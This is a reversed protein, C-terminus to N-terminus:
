SQKSLGEFYASAARALRETQRDRLYSVLAQFVKPLLVPEPEPEREARSIGAGELRDRSVDNTARPPLGDESIGGAPTEQRLNQGRGQHAHDICSHFLQGRLDIWQIESFPKPLPAGCFLVPVLKKSEDSLAWRIENAIFTSERAECCWCLVFVRAERVAQHIEAEWNDGPRLSSVDFFVMDNSAVGLLGALPKVLAEDHRSYSVFVKTRRKRAM